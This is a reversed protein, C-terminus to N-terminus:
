RFAQRLLVAGGVVVIGALLWNTGCWTTIDLWSAQTWDCGSSPMGLEPYQVTYPNATTQASLNSPIVGTSSASSYGAPLGPSASGPALTPASPQGQPTCEGGAWVGGVAACTLQDIQGLGRRRPLARIGTSRRLYPMLKNRSWMALAALWWVILIAWVCLERVFDFM